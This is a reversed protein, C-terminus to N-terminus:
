KKRRKKITKVGVVLIATLEDGRRDFRIGLFRIYPVAGVLRNLAGDRRQKIAQVPEPPSTPM